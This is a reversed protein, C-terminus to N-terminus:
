ARAVDALAVFDCSEDPRNDGDLDTAGNRIVLAGITQGRSVVLGGSMGTVVPDSGQDLKAIWTMDDRRMYISGTRKEVIQTCGAPWGYIEVPDGDRPMPARSLDVDGILAIDFMGPRTNVQPADGCFDPIFGDMAEVVHAATIWGNGLQFYSGPASMNDRRWYHRRVDRQAVASYNQRPAAPAKTLKHNKAYAALFEKMSLTPQGYPSGPLSAWEKACKKVASDLRGSVVDDLAGRRRILWAAAIDQSLPSFDPLYLSRQIDRWTKKLIQYAGAASSKYGSKSIIKKPHDEYSFFLSGGFHMRYGDKKATGEAVRIAKLFARVNESVLFQQLDDAAETYGAHYSSLGPLGIKRTTVLTSGAAFVGFIVAVLDALEKILTPTIWQPSFGFMAATQMLATLFGLWVTASKLGEPNRLRHGKRFVDIIATFKNSM